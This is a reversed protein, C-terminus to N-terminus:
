SLLPKWAIPNVPRPSDGAIHVYWGNLAIDFYAKYSVPERDKPVSNLAWIGMGDHPASDITHFGEPLQVVKDQYNEIIPRWGDAINILKDDLPIEQDGRVFYELMEDVNLYVRRIEPEPETGPLLLATDVKMMVEFVSGNDPATDIPQWPGCGKEAEVINQHLRGSSFQVLEDSLAAGFPAYEEASTWQTFFAYKGVTSAGAMFASHLAAMVEPHENDASIGCSELFEAYADAILTKDELSM